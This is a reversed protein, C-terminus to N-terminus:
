TGWSVTIVMTQFQQDNERSHAITTTSAAAEGATKGIRKVVGLAAQYTADDTAIGFSTARASKTLSDLKSV